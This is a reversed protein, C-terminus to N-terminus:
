KFNDKWIQELDADFKPGHTIISMPKDFYGRTYKEVDAVNVADSLEWQHYVDSLIDYCAWDSVLRDCRRTNRELFDARGLKNQNRYQALKEETPLDDTYVKHCTQAILAMVRAVNDPSTETYIRTLDTKSDGYAVGVQVGYTLGNDSRLIDFLRERLYMDFKLVCKDKYRADLTDPWLTPFLVEIGVNKTDPIYNHAVCPTYKLPYHNEVAHAPLFNFMGELEQLLKNQDDIKGSICILCNKASMRKSIFDMMDERTFKKINQPNGLTPKGNPVDFGLVTKNTFIWQKIDNDSLSRRLEDLIPGRENELVDKDFLSNKIRDALFDMLVMLNEAVIRGVFSLRKQSTMANIYGGHNAIYDKAIRSTPFRPTGKCFMHECFHTLGYDDPNEDYSGTRFSISVEDTAVDMPDLIVTVGNSLKHMTANFQM